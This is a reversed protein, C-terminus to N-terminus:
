YHVQVSNSSDMHLQDKDHQNNGTDDPVFIDTRLNLVKNPYPRSIRPIITSNKISNNNILKRRLYIILKYKKPAPTPTINAQTVRTTHASINLLRDTKQVFKLLNPSCILTWSDCFM